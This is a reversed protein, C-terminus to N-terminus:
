DGGGVMDVVVVAGFGGIVHWTRSVVSPRGAEEMGTMRVRCLGGVLEEEVRAKEESVLASPRTVDQSGDDM